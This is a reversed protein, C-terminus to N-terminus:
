VREIRNDAARRLRNMVALGMGRPEIGEALIIDVGLEDFRRLAGFLRSAITAPDKRWGAVVVQGEKYEGATEATALIGVRWGRSLYSEALGKLRAAVREPEGEVLVLPARPAYHRYKMGPSRPRFEGAPSGRDPVGDIGPDVRVEGIVKELEERTIGGPRLIVPVDGTLDLVTSELGVGAPGGDLIVEIRGNLDQLVHEATTPSPRGSLNASPAAVPVGAAAILALAVPHAPMRIGVSDLGATVQRPITDAAPLVLTLPGPWFADMLKGASAPVRCALRGVTERDAVHVILPNDQPRGKAEFIRAVALADLANAGLGYVTETPFAVLGGQRLILGARAMIGPDPRAPDVRWYATRGAPNKSREM